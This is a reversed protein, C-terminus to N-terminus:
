AQKILYAETISRFLRIGIWLTGLHWCMLSIYKNINRTHHYGEAVFFCMIPCTIRGIIHMIIAIPNTNFDRFIAWAVHDVTMAIIAILKIVNSNFKQYNKLQIENEM